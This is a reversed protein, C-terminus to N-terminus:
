GNPVAQGYVHLRLADCGQANLKHWGAQTMSVPQADDIRCLAPRTAYIACGHEGGPEGRLHICAGDGRNLHALAEVAGIM